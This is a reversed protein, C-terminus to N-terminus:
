SWIEIGKTYLIYQEDAVSKPIHSIFLTLPIILSKTVIGCQITIWYMFEQMNALNEIHKKDVKINNYEAWAIIPFLAAMFEIKKRTFGCEHDYPVNLLDNLRAIERLIASTNIIM